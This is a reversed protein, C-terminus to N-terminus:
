EEGKLEFQGNPDFVKNLRVLEKQINNLYENTHKTLTKGFYLFLVIVLTLTLHLIEKIQNM